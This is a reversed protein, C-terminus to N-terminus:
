ASPLHEAVSGGLHGMRRNQECFAESKSNREEGKGIGVVAWMGRTGGIM